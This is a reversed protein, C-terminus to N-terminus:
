NWRSNMWHRVYDLRLADVHPTPLAEEWAVFKVRFRIFILRRTQDRRPTKAQIARSRGAGGRWDCGRGAVLAADVDFVHRNVGQLRQGSFFADVEAIGLELRIDDGRDLRLQRFAAGSMVTATIVGGAGIMEAASARLWSDMPGSIASSMRSASIAAAVSTSSPGSPQSPRAKPSCVRSCRWLPRYQTQEGTKM